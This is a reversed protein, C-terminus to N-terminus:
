KTFSTAVLHTPIECAVFAPVIRGKAGAGDGTQFLCSVEFGANCDENTFLVHKIKHTVFLRITPVIFESLSPELEPLLRGTKNMPTVNFM